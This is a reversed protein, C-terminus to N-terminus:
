LVTGDQWLTIEHAVTGLGGPLLLARVGTTLSVITKMESSSM